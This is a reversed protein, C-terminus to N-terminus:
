RWTLHAVRGHAISITQLVVVKTVIRSMKACSYVESRKVTLSFSNLMSDNSDCLSIVAAKRCRTVRSGHVAATSSFFPSFRMSKKFPCLRNM